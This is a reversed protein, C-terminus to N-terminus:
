ATVFRIGGLRQPISSVSCSAYAVTFKFSGLIRLDIARASTGATDRGM